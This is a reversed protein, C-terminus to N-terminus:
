KAGEYMSENEKLGKITTDPKTFMDVVDYGQVMCGNVDLNLNHKGDTSKTPVQAFTTLPATLAATLCLTLVIIKKM